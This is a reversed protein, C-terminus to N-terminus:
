KKMEAKNAYMQKDARRFVSYVETDIEKIFVSMGIAASYRMYKEDKTNHSIDIFVKKIKEILEDRIKYDEGQLIVVIEDGGIRYVPSHKYVNCVINSVGKIYIDGSDHGYHDNISKLDNVDLM